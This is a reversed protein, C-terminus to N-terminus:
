ASVGGVAELLREFRFPVFFSALYEHAQAVWDPPETRDLASDLAMVRAAEQSATVIVRWDRCEYLPDITMEGAVQFYIPRLGAGAAQIIATTGRYIAWRCLGIDHALTETSWRVNAPLTRWSPNRAVLADISVLPHLRWIFDVHPSEKACQLSFDFLLQCEAPIGEPLVLCAPRAQGSAGAPAERNANRLIPAIGRNSGLVTVPLGHLAPAADLQHKGLEGATLIHDPNYEPGLNRRIAHQLRFLASHQYAICRIGPVARRAAAFALREYAHGEHTVVIARPKLRASLASVQSSIRLPTLASASAAERAARRLVQAFLGPPEEMALAKLRKSERSLARRFGSEDATAVADGLVVRPIGTGSWAPAVEAGPTGSHNVLAIVVSHGAKVLDDPVSGFYFDAPAGAGATNLLHSVFLIDVREPLTASEYWPAPRRVSKLWQRGRMFMGYLRDRLFRALRKASPPAEFLAEYNALFSPHERIVHLWPIAIRERNTDPSMLVRDCLACLEGYQRENM